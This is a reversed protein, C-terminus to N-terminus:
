FSVVELRSREPPPHGVCCADIAAAQALAFVAAAAMIGEPPRADKLRSHLWEDRAWHALAAEAATIRADNLVAQAAAVGHALADPSAGEVHLILVM